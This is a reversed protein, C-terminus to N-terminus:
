YVFSYVEPIPPTYFSILVHHMHTTKSPIHPPAALPLLLYHAGHVVPLHGELFGSIVAFLILQCCITNILM